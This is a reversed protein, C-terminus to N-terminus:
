RVEGSQEARLIQVTKATVAAIWTVVGAVVGWWAGHADAVASTIFIVALYFVVVVFASM